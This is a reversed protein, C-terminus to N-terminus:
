LISYYCLNTMNERVLFVNSVHDENFYRLNNKIHFIICVLSYVRTETMLDNM